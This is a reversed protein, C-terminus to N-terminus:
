NVKEENQWYRTKKSLCVRKITWFYMWSRFNYVIKFHKLLIKTLIITSSVNNYDLPNFKRKLASPPTKFNQVNLSRGRQNKNSVINEQDRHRLNKKEPLENM